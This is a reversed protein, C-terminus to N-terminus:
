SLTGTPEVPALSKSHSEALPTFEIGQMYNMQTDISLISSLCLIQDLRFYSFNKGQESKKAQDEFLKHTREIL